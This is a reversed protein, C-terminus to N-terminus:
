WRRKERVDLHYLCPAIQNFGGNWDKFRNYVGSCNGEVRFDVAEGSYHASNGAHSGGCTSRVLVTGYSRAEDLAELLRAPLGRCGGSDKSARAAPPSGPAFKPWEPTDQAFLSTVGTGLLVLTSFLTLVKM